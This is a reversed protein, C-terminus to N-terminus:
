QAQETKGSKEGLVQYYDEITNMNTLIRIREKQLVLPKVTALELFRQMSYEGKDLLLRILHRSSRSYIGPFPEYRGEPEELCVVEYGEEWFGVLERIVLEDIFPMDCTFVSSARHASYALATYVGGLPGREKLLDEHIQAEGWDLGKLKARVNVIVLTESFLSSVLSVLNELLTKEGFKLLAKDEGMRSSKGGALIVGTMSIRNKTKTM